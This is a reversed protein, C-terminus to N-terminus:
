SNQRNYTLYLQHYWIITPSSTLYFTPSSFLIVTPSSKISTSLLYSWVQDGLHYRDLHFRNLSYYSYFWDNQCCNSAFRPILHRHRFDWFRRHRFIISGPACSIDLCDFWFKGYYIWLFQFSFISRDIYDNWSYLLFNILLKRQSNFQILCRVHSSLM